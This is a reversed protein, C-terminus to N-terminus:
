VGNDQGGEDDDDLMRYVARVLAFVCLAPLLLVIIISVIASDVKNM